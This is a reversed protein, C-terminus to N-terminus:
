ELQEEPLKFAAPPSRPSQLAHRAADAYDPMTQAARIVRENISAPMARLVTRALMQMLRPGHAGHRGEASRRVVMRVRKLRLAEFAALMAAPELSAVTMLAVADELGQCAGQGLNPEMAHAADGISIVRGNGMRDPARKAHIVFPVLREPSTAAIAETISSPWGAARATVQEHTPTACTASQDRMYFWYRRQQPLEFVGFREGWGWYEAALGKLSGGVSESLALVGGYGSFTAQRAALAVDVVSRIGGADVLLDASACAGDALEVTVGARSQEVALISRGLQLRESDLAEVLLHQLATRTIMVAGLPVPRPGIIANGRQDALLMASIPMGVAAATQGLGLEDLAAIANPWLSLAAGMPEVTAAREYVSVSWGARVLGIAAALGSVGGGAVIASPM